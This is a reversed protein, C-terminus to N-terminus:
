LDTAGLFSEKICKTLSHTERTYAVGTDDLIPSLSIPKVM